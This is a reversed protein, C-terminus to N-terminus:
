GAQCFGPVGALGREVASARCGGADDRGADGRAAAGPDAAEPGREASDGPRAPQLYVRLSSGSCQTSAELYETAGDSYLASSFSIPAVDETAATLQGQWLPHDGRATHCVLPDHLLVPSVGVAISRGGGAPAYQGWIYVVGGDLLTENWSRVLTYNGARAPFRAAMSDDEAIVSRGISGSARALWVGAFLVVAALAGLRAYGARPAGDVPRGEDAAAARPAIAGAGERLRHIVGFLLMTAVLFLAAGIAYDAGEAKNQLSRFHLAVLYYLVLLCLRALNFVYGLLVAGMTVLANAYWRFRYVYGAILAIFGMTVSGRIGNCGPAIFMGFEPTFMLRLKDATLPQRLAMAFGRAIHASAAQLPLDVLQNFVHPVPNVFWLLLIPFLAARFLRVGGLLLVV